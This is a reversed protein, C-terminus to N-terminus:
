GDSKDSKPRRWGKVINQKARALTLQEAPADQSISSGAGITAKNGITVPAILSANSGIFAGDGITTPWKNVGDYNCTITGAGINVEKGIIADGLYALHNAKSGVGLRTNKIEVFNGVKARKDILTGPRLRAFPGVEAGDSVKAGEIISNAHITVNDGITANKIIVNPGITSNSGITVKGELVVNIDLVVDTGATVEGRVDLRNPDMITVGAYALEKAFMHQYYRELKALQWRDNVGLVEEHCHAMFGGVPHGSKVALEVIDTLYYEEQKNNNKLEPLWSKLFRASTTLIGTNIERIKLQQDTADKDEVIAIINGMENRIIRGFGSPDELETLILGLGNKSTRNLLQQLTKATIIPVDGYLVLVQDSDKCEPMAQMVAHGTGLQEEQKIWNVSLHNLEQHVTSGGNGYVVHIAEPKLTQATNVVRELLPIGGLPHLIKPFSSAMRKGKGAALIVVSLGM